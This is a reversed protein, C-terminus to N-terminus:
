DAIDIKNGVLAIIVDDGREERVYELWKSL